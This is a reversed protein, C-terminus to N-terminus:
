RVHATGAPRTAPAPPVPRPVDTGSHAFFMPVLRPGGVFKRIIAFVNFVLLASAVAIANVWVHPMDRHHLVQTLARGFGGYEHRAEFAKEILLVVLVGLGYLATRLVLDYVPPSRHVWGGLPVHELVLVVKALILAGVLAALLGRTRIRYEDLLLIKLATLVCLWAAFFLTTLAVAVLEQMVRQRVSM